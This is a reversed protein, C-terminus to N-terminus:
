ILVMKNSYTLTHILTIAVAGHQFPTKLLNTETYNESHVHWDHISNEEYQQYWISKLFIGDYGISYAMLGLKDILSPLLLKVWPREFDAHNNWDLKSIENDQNNQNDILNGDSANDILTLVKHKIDNHNDLKDKLYYNQIEQKYIM